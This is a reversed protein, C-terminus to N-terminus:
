RKLGVFFPEIHDGMTVNFTLLSGSMNMPRAVGNKTHMLNTGQVRFEKRPAIRFFVFGETPEPGLLGPRFIRSMVREAHKDKLSGAVDGATVHRLATGDPLYLVLNMREASLLIQARDMDEGRLQVTLAIPIIDEKDILDVGFIRKHDAPLHAQAYVINELTQAPFGEFGPAKPSIFEGKAGSGACSALLLPLCALVVRRANM